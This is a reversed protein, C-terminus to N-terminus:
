RNKRGDLVPAEKQSSPDGVGRAVAIEIVGIPRKPSSFFQRASDNEQHSAALPKTVPASIRTSPPNETLRDSEPTAAADWWSKTM